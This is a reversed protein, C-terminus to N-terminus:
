GIQFSILPIQCNISNKKRVEPLLFEGFDVYKRNKKFNWKKAFNRWNFFSPQNGRLGIQTM